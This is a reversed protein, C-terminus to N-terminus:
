VLGLLLYTHSIYNAFYLIEYIMNKLTKTKSVEPQIALFWPDRALGFTTCVVSWDTNKAYKTTSPM